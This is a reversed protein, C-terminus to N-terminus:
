EKVELVFKVVKRINKEADLEDKWYHKVYNVMGVFEYLNDLAGRKKTGPEQFQEKFITWVKNGRRKKPMPLM